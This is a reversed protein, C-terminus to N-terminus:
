YTVERRQLYNLVAASACVIIILMIGAMASAVGARQQTFATKVVEFAITATGRTGPGGNTLVAIQDFVKFSNIMLMVTNITFAPALLPWTIHRFRQWGSAGDLSVAEDIENPIGALGALNVVIVFGLSQWIMIFSVTYLALSPDSLWGPPSEMGLSRLTTNVLGEDVLLSRWIVAVVVSSLIVPTFYVSRLASCLRQQPRILLAIAIGLVNTGICVILTIAVSNWLVKQFAKNEFLFFYNSFGIFETVPRTARENTLGVYMTWLIPILVFAAFILVAPLVFIALNGFERMAKASIARALGSRRRDM